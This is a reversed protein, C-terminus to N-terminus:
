ELVEITILVGPPQTRDISCGGLQMFRSRDDQILQGDVLGDFLAKAAYIANPEDAPRYFDDRLRYPGPGTHFELSVRVRAPMVWHLRNRESAALLKVAKRYEKKAEHTDWRSNGQGSNPSLSKPPLPVLFQMSAGIM